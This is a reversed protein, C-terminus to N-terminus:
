IEKGRIFQLGRKAAVRLFRAHSTEGLLEACASNGRVYHKSYGAGGFPANSFEQLCSNESPMRSCLLKM